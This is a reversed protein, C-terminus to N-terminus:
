YNNVCIDSCAFHVAALFSWEDFRIASKFYAVYWKPGGWKRVKMEWRENKNDMVCVCTVCKFLLGMSLEWQNKTQCQVKQGDKFQRRALPTEDSVISSTGAYGVTTVRVSM